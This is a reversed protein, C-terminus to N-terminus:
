LCKFAKFIAAKRNVINHVHATKIIRLTNKGGANSSAHQM